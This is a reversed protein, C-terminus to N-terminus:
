RAYLRRFSFCAATVAAYIAIRLGALLWDLWGWASWDFIEAVGEAHVFGFLGGFSAGLVLGATMVWGIRPGWLAPRRYVLWPVFLFVIGGMEEEGVSPFGRAWDAGLEWLGKALLLGVVVLLLVRRRRRWWGPSGWRPPTAVAGAPLTVFTNM